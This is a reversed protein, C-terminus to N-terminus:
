ANVIPEWMENDERRMYLLQGVETMAEFPEDYVATYMGYVVREMEKISNCSDILKESKKPGIGKIGPINDAKDGTLMQKYFNQTAEEETVTYHKKTVFNYHLGPTNNLDKDPSAGVYGNMMAKSIVDDAEEDESFITYPKDALWERILKFHHPKDTGKRNEKYPLITAIRDRFNTKGSLVVKFRNCRSDKVINQIHLKLTTIVQIPDEVYFYSTVLLDPNLKLYKNVIRKYRTTLFPGATHQGESELQYVTRQTVFGIQYPLFDGDLFVTNDM